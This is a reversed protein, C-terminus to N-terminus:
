QRKVKEAVVRLQRRQDSTLDDQDSKSYALLLYVRGHESLVVYVVRAGGRKGKRKSRCRIKRCGGCGKIVVGARPNVELTAKLDGIEEATLLGESSRVFSPTEVVTVRASLVGNAYKM